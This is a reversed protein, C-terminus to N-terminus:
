VSMQGADVILTTGTVFAALDSVAFLVVRAIDDPVGSRGLPLADYVDTAHLRAGARAAAEETGPTIVMTPAIGVARVGYRGLEVALSRTLGRVAHKSSSYHALGQRGRYGSVSSLNVIVGGRVQAVMARAAARSCYFAADLNVSHVRRWEDDSLELLPSSPFIGANNVWIDLHGHTDVLEDVLQAVASSDTVDLDVGRATHRGGLEAATTGAGTVDAVVVVAGAEALRAAIARGIGRAGGTVVALRGDLDILENISVGTLDPAVTQDSM